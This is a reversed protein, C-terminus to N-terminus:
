FSGLPDLMRKQSRCASCANPTCIYRPLVTVCIFYFYAFRKKFNVIQQLQPLLETITLVQQEQPHGPKGPGLDAPECTGTIRTGPSRIGEDPGHPM